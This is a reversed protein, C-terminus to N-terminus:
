IASVVNGNIDVGRKSQQSEPVDDQNRGAIWFISFVEIGGGNFDGISKLEEGEAVDELLSSSSDNLKLMPYMMLVHVLDSELEVFFVIKIAHDVDTATRQLNKLLVTM